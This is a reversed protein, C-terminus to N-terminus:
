SQFPSLVTALNIGKMFACPFHMLKGKMEITAGEKSCVACHQKWFSIVKRELAPLQNDWMQIDPATLACMGHLWLDFVFESEANLHSPKKALFSPWHKGPVRVFYPGFLDGLISRSSRQQCLACKWRTPVCDSRESTEANLHSPKKALFSPWHKGPVRVFYPGFLDGLISRSSRQQCLACKWRTPVCDSRESTQPKQASTGEALAYFDEALQASYAAYHSVPVKMVLTLYRRMETSKRYIVKNARNIRADEARRVITDHREGNRVCFTGYSRSFSSTRM